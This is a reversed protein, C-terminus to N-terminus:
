SVAELSPPQLSEGITEERPLRNFQALVQAYRFRMWADHEATVPHLDYGDARLWLAGCRDVQPMPQESGDPALYTEAFRYAALQLAAEPWVGSKATKWDILWLRGDGLEALLDATGMYRCTRSVVVFEALVDRVRWQTVFQLYSDVHGVLHEPVELEEGQALREVLSHVVRGRVAAEDRESWPAKELARLRESPSLGALEEWHDIGYGAVARAAWGILNPKPIGDRIVSTVGDVSDGDLVYRHGSGAAVRRTVGSM